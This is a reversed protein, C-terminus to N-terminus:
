KTGPARCRCDWRRSIDRRYFTVWFDQTEPIAYVSDNIIYGLLSGPSYIRIFSDFDKFSRLDYLANRLALEYPINTSIGLAVDPEINGAIALALKSENPMISFKVRIGTQPTFTQDAMQQMLDVYQRPRNVWVEIEGESAGISQYPNRKFSHFFRKVGETFATWGSVEPAPPTVDPSHVYIKDLTLPQEQLSGLISGLLQMASQPGESLRNMRVPIKDPEDALLLINDLAMQYNMIEQSKLGHNIAELAAKDEALKDAINALRENIDPIYEAIDWERYSDVQNGTLHKIELSLANIDLISQRINEIADDYPSINAEIGIVNTGEHLYVRYPLTIDAWEISYGFPVENFEDFPVTGNITLRRFVTFNNKTNQLARLTIFYMGEQPAEVEYYLASGSRQWSEGGITNLLLQYTDYPTVKLSRNYLPRISVSNKYSPWEAELEILIGSTDAHPTAELYQQYPQDPSFPQLYISGLLLTERKLIFEFEHEGQSLHIQLPYKQSLDVDRMFTRTWRTFRVPPILIQNGYRDLPFEDDGNRYYVPFVIRRADEVPLAGDLRLEGEPATVLVEEPAAADFALTYYGEEEVSATFRVRDGAELRVSPKDYLRALDDDALPLGFTGAGIEVTGGGNEIFPAASLPSTEQRAAVAFAGAAPNSLLLLIAGLFRFCRIARPRLNM